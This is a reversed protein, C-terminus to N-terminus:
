WRASGGVRQGRLVRSVSTQTVGVRAGIEDQKLGGAVALRQIEARQDDTLRGHRNRARGKAACDAVNDQQTGPFVHDPRVCAPTDCKHCAVQNGLPGILLEYAVRHALKSTASVGILGYGDGNKAGTWILCGDGPQKEVKEWFRDALARRRNHGRIFSSHPQLERGCGCQCLTSVM